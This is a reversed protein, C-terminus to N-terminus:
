SAEPECGVLREVKRWGKPLMRGRLAREGYYDETDDWKITMVRTGSHVRLDGDEPVVAAAVMKEEGSKYKPGPINILKNGKGKALEPVEDMECIL